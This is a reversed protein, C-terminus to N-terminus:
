NFFNLLFILVMELLLSSKWLEERILLKLFDPFSKNVHQENHIIGGFNKKMFLFATMIMRHDSPMM